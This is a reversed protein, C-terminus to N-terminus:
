FCVAPIICNATYNEENKSTFFLCKDNKIGCVIEIFDNQNTISSIFACLKKCDITCERQNPEELKYEELSDNYVQLYSHYNKIAVDDTDVSLNLSGDNKILFTMTPSVKRFAEMIMKFVNIPPLPLLFDTKPAKPIEYASYDYESLMTIPINHIITRTNVESDQAIEIKLNTFPDKTLKIKCSIVSPKVSSLAKGLNSPNMTLYIFKDENHGHFARRSFVDPVSIDFWVRPAIKDSEEAVIFLINDEGIQVLCEKTLKSIIVSIGLLDKVSKYERFEAVFRM